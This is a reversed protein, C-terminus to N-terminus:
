NKLEWEQFYNTNWVILFTYTQPVVIQKEKKVAICIYSFLWNVLWLSISQRIVNKDCYDTLMNFVM